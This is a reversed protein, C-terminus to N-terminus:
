SGFTLHSITLDRWTVFGCSQINFVWYRKSLGTALSSQFCLGVFERKLIISAFCSKTNIIQAIRVKMQCKWHPKFSRVATTWITHNCLEYAFSTSVLVMKWRNVAYRELAVITSKSVFAVSAEVSIRVNVIKDTQDKRKTLTVFLSELIMVADTSTQM